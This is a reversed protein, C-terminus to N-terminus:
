ASSRGPLAAVPPAARGSSGARSAARSNAPKRFVRNVLEIAEPTLPPAAAVLDDIHESVGPTDLISRHPASEATM